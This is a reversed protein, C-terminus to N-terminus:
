WSPVIRMVIRQHLTVTTFHREAQYREKIETKMAGTM